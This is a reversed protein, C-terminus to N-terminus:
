RTGTRPQLSSAVYTFPAWYYPNPHAAATALQARRLAEAPACGLALHEYMVRMLGATTEDNVVWQSVVAGAAGAALFAWALGVPEASDHGARGSECASLTVLAGRLDLELIEASTMWRDALRLASFLPNAPRYLGHCAIHLVGLRAAQARLSESTAGEGVVIRAQPMVTGISRAEDAVAPANADPVALVLVGDRVPAPEASAAPVCVTPAVTIAWREALHARGDHLAQFPVQHLRRHPVVVLAAGGLEDLLDAVPAVLLRHLETLTQRTTKALMAEHRRAFAAGVRFRSWQATLRDLEVEVADMVNPLRRAQVQGHGVVFVLVDRGSVHYGLTPAVPLLTAAPAVAIPDDPDAVANRIRLSTVESELSEVRQRLLARRTPEETAVLTAWAASLDAQREELRGPASPGAASLAGNTLDLLTQAKARDGIRCAEALDAPEGRDVLLDVLEDYAAVKDARFATRLALDPLQVGMREIADIAARLLAEAEATRGSRRRLRALRLQHTHRLHPLQLEDLLAATAELHAEATVDDRASDAMRLLAGVLPIRWGGAELAAAAEAALAGAQVRRGAAAAVDAEALLVRAQHQPDDVEEFREAARRLAVLADDLRNAALDALAGTFVALAADHVLGSRSTREQASAAAAGAEDFMGATLYTEAVALTVRAAEADAGLEDLTTRASELVRLAQALEGLQRHARAVHTGCKAAWLRDGAAAFSAAAAELDALAERARGLELLEIGRNALPKATEEPMDLERYGAESRAYADLAREHEGMFGYSVGLNGLASARIWARLDRETPDGDLADLGALLAHGVDAAQHHRGADDLLQMRGLDTRLASGPQGARQWGDRAADILELARDLEGREASVRAGLYAARAQIAPLGLRGGTTGCLEALSEAQAPDDHVLEQARDLLGNLGAEDGLYEECDGAELANDTLM